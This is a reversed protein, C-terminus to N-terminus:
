RVAETEGKATSRRPLTRVGAGEAMQKLIDDKSGFRQVQGNGMVLLLDISALSVPRHAVLVVIGGRARTAAISEALAQDGEADLNSNPEDLVLLFPSGYVARALAVRQRQGASLLAGAEGIRTSYGDPLRLVMDHIGAIRAADIVAEAPPQPEFRCINEAITGDFLQVDQPLYGIHRGLQEPNWHDLAASDLRVKGRITPWVGVLARVLSSKGSASPGIIGLGEGARLRFSVNQVVLRQNGPPSVVVMEVSIEKTPPPLPLPPSSAALRNILDTLRRWSQRTSVFNKWHVIALEVPALARSTLISSAIIIGGTAQQNIVLYAGIALVSSQLLTRLVRSLAGLGSVVDSSRRQADMYEVNVETWRAFLREVMGMARLVEVNRRGAELTGLRVGALQSAAGVSARTMVETVLTLSILLVAGVLATVGIWVHFVFCLALYLPMWPLDFLATPGLSSLFGRIQDLDRVPQLSDSRAGSVLPLKVVAEYAHRSLRQDLSTGIRVLLRGRIADFLGQFAYLGVVLGFLGFLTPLSRSPIVRDYVQLMFFSGTLMLINIIGTFLAVSLLSLRCARIVKIAPSPESLSPTDPPTV